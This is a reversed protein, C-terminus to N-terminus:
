LESHWQFGNIYIGIWIPDPWWSVHQYALRGCLLAWLIVGLREHRRYLRVLLTVARTTQTNQYHSRRVYNNDMISAYIMKSTSAGNFLRIRERSGVIIIHTLTQWENYIWGLIRPNSAILFGIYILRQKCWVWYVRCASNWHKRRSMLLHWDMQRTKETNSDM